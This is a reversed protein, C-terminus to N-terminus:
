FWEVLNGDPDRMPGSKVDGEGDEGDGADKVKLEKGIYATKKPPAKGKDVKRLLSPISQRKSLGIRYRTSVKSPNPLKIPSHQTPGTSPSANEKDPSPTSKNPPRSPTILRADQNQQSPTGAHAANPDKISLAARSDNDADDEFRLRDDEDSEPITSKKPKRGRKKPEPAVVLQEVEQIDNITSAPPIEVSISVGTKKGEDQPAAQDEAKILAKLDPPLDLKVPAPREDVWLVDAEDDSVMAESRKLAAASTKARKVKSKKGKSKNSRPPPMELEVVAQLQKTHQTDTAEAANVPEEGTGRKSRSRSPRPVYSEKPLGILVEESSNSESAPQKVPSSDDQQQQTQSKKRKRKTNSVTEEVESLQSSSGLTGRRPRTSARRSSTVPMDDADDDIQSSPQTRQLETPAASVSSLKSNKPKQGRKKLPPKDLANSMSEVSLSAARRTPAPSATADRPTMDTKRRKSPREANEQANSVPEQMSVAPDMIQHEIVASGDAESPGTRETADPEDHKAEQSIGRFPNANIDQREGLGRFDLNMSQYGGISSTSTSFQHNGTHASEEMLSLVRRARDRQCTSISTPDEASPEDPNNYDLTRTETHRSSDPDESIPSIPPPQIFDPFLNPSHLSWNRTKSGYTKRSKGKSAHDGRDRSSGDAVSQSRKNSSPTQDTVTNWEKYEITSRAEASSGALDIQPNTLGRLIKDTSGTGTDGAANQSPSLDSLRQTPEIFQDFDVNSLSAQQSDAASQAEFTPHPALDHPGDDSEADSDAIEPAM